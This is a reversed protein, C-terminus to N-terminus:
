LEITQGDFGPEVGAPLERRLAEYDLSQDMHTLIARRPELRKIWELTRELHSHTPHPARRICDVIWVEIGALAEFAAEDLTVVDTSYAFRGFRFGLTKSFGHDQMFPMVAIGAATFPGGIEHPEVAPKYFLAKAEADIPAFIYRFRARLETMTFPAAYIPLPKGMMRNVSRLDDIGHTHDAHSHTFLVADIRTVNADLLQERLDPSTDVLLVSGGEEVLISVRRRRNKANGPDCAGWDGGIRPVGWSPGSGLMTIRM